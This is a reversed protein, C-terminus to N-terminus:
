GTANRAANRRPIIFGIAQTRLCTLLRYATMIARTTAPKLWDILFILISITIFHTFLVFIFSPIMIIHHYKNPFWKKYTELNIVVPANPDSGACEEYNWEYNTACCEQLTDQMWHVARLDM